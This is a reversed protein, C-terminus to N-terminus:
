TFHKIAFDWFIKDVDPRNWDQVANGCDPLCLRSFQRTIIYISGIVGHGVDLETEQENDSVVGSQVLMCALRDGLNTIMNAKGFVNWATLYKLSIFGLARQTIRM